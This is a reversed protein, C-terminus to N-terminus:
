NVFEEIKTTQKADILRIYKKNISDYIQFDAFNFDEGTNFQGLKKEFAGHNEYMDYWQNSMLSFSRKFYLNNKEFIKESGGFTSYIIQGGFYLPAIGNGSIVSGITLIIPSLIVILYYTTM